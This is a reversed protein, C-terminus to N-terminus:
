IECPAPVGGACEEKEEGHPLMRSQLHLPEESPGASPGASPGPAGSKGAQVLIRLGADRTVRNNVYGM